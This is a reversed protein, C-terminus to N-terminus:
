GGCYRVSRSLSRGWRAGPATSSSPTVTIKCDADIRSAHMAANPLKYLSVTHGSVQKGTRHFDFLRGAKGYATEQGFRRDYGYWTTGAAYRLEYNRAKGVAKISLM